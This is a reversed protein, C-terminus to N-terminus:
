RSPIRYAPPNKRRIEDVIKDREAKSLKEYVALSAAILEWNQLEDRAAIENFHNRFELSVGANLQYDRGARRLTRKDLKHPTVNGSPAIEPEKLNDRTDTPPAGLSRKKTETTSM